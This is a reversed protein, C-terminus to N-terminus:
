AVEVTCNHYDNDKGLYVIRCYDGPSVKKMLADLKGFSDVVHKLGNDSEFIYSKSVFKKGSANKREEEVYEKFTGQLLEGTFEDKALRTANHFKVSPGESLEVQKFERSM